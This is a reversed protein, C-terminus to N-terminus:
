EGSPDGEGGTHEDEDDVEIREVFCYAGGTIQIQPSNCFLCTPRLPPEAQFTAGCTQCHGQGPERRIRLIAGEAPTGQSLLDFYFRISDDVYGTLAGVVLDIALVRRARAAEAAELVVSLIGQTIALEHM